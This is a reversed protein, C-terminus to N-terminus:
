SPLAKFTSGTVGWLFLDSRGDAVDRLAADEQTRVDFLIKDAVPGKRAGQAFTFSAAILAFVTTFLFRKLLSTTGRFFISILRSLLCAALGPSPRM